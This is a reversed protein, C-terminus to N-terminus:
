WGTGERGPALRHIILIVDRGNTGHHPEERRQRVHTQHVAVPLASSPLACQQPTRQLEVQAYLPVVKLFSSYWYEEKFTNTSRSQRRLVMDMLVKNIILEMAMRVERDWLQLRM